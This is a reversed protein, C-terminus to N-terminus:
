PPHTHVDIPLHCCCLEAVCSVRLVCRTLRRLEKTIGDYSSCLLSIAQPFDSIISIPLSYKSSSFACLDYLIPWHFPLRSNCPIGAPDPLQTTTCALSHCPWEADMWFNCSRTHAIRNLNPLDKRSKCVCVCGRRSIKTPFFARASSCTIPKSPM